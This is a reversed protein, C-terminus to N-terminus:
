LLMRNINVSVYIFMLVRLKFVQFDIINVPSKSFLQM